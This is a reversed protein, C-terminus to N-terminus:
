YMWPYFLYALLCIYICANPYTGWAWQHSLYYTLMQLGQDENATSVARFHLCMREMVSKIEWQNHNKVAELISELEEASCMLDKM